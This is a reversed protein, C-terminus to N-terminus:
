FSLVSIFQRASRSVIEPLRRRSRELRKIAARLKQQISLSAELIELSRKCLREARARARQAEILTAKTNVM